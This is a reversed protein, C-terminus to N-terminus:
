TRRLEAEIEEPSPLLGKLKKLLSETLRTVYGSIGVPKNNLLHLFRGWPIQAVLQQVIEQCGIQAVPQPVKGEGTTLTVSKGKKSTIGIKCRGAAFNDRRSRGILFHKVNSFYKHM